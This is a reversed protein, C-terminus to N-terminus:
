ISYLVKLLACVHLHDLGCKARDMVIAALQYYIAVLLWWAPWVM